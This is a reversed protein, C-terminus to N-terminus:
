YSGSTPGKPVSPASSPGGTGMSPASGKTPATKKRSASKKLPQRAQEDTTRAPRGIPAPALWPAGVDFCPREEVPHYYSFKKVFSDTISVLINNIEQSFGEYNSTVLAQREWTIVQWLGNFDEAIREVKGLEYLHATVFGVYRNDCPYAMILVHFLPAPPQCPIVLADPVINGSQFMGKIMNELAIPDLPIHRDNPKLLEVKVGIYPTLNYFFDHVVWKGEKITSFGPTLIDPPAVDQLPFSRIQLGQGKPTQLTSSGQTNGTVQAPQPYAQQLPAANIAAAQPSGPPAANQPSLQPYLASGYTTPYGGASPTPTTPPILPGFVPNAPTSNLPIPTVGGLTTTNFSPFSPSPSGFSPFSPGLMSPYTGPPTYNQAIDENPESACVNVLFLCAFVAKVKAICSM